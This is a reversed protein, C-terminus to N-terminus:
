PISFLPLPAQLTLLCKYCLFFCQALRLADELSPSAHFTFTSLIVFWQPEVFTYVLTAFVNVPSRGWINEPCAQFAHLFWSAAFVRLISQIQCLGRTGRYCWAESTGSNHAPSRLEMPCLGHWFLLDTDTDSRGRTIADEKTQPVREGLTNRNPQWNCSDEERMGPYKLTGLFAM